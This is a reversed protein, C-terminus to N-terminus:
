KRVFVKCRPELPPANPSAARERRKDAEANLRKGVTEWADRLREHHMPLWDSSGDKGSDHEVGLLADIPLRPERAFMLYYPSFGTSSHPTCNYM